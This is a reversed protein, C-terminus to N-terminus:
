YNLIATFKGHLIISSFFYTDFDLKVFFDTGM